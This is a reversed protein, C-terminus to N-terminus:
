VIKTQELMECVKYSVFGLVVTPVSLLFALWFLNFSPNRVPHSFVALIPICTLLITMWKSKKIYSQMRKQQVTYKQRVRLYNRITLAVVILASPVSVFASSITMVDQPSPDGAWALAPFLAISGLWLLSSILQKNSSTHMHEPNEMDVHSRM